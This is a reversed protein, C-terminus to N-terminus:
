APRGDIYVEGYEAEDVIGTTDNRELYYDIREQVTADTGLEDAYDPLDVDLTCKMTVKIRM